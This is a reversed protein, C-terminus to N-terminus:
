GGILALVDLEAAMLARPVGRALQGTRASRLESVRKPRTNRLTAQQSLTSCWRRRLPAGRRIQFRRAAATRCVRGLHWSTVLAPEYRQLPKPM